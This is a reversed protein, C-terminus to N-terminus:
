AKRITKITDTRFKNYSKCVTKHEKWDAKQCKANCYTVSRCGSCRQMDEGKTGCKMCTSHNLIKNIDYNHEIKISGQPSDPSTILTKYANKDIIVSKLIGDELRKSAQLFLHLVFQEEPNYLDLLTDLSKNYEGYIKDKPLFIMPMGTSTMLQSISDFYCVYCGRKNYSRAENFIKLSQASIEEIYFAFASQITTM